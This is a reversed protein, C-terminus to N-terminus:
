RENFKLNTKSLDLRFHDGKEYDVSRRGIVTLIAQIDLKVTGPAYEEDPTTMRRNEEAEKESETRPSNKRVYATLIEMITRHYKDPREKAIQELAYIGGLRIEINKSKGDTSGLQEIARTFRETIQGSEMAIVQRESARIRRYTLFLGLGIAIGGIFQVTTRRFTDELESREKISLDNPSLSNIQYRPVYVAVLIAIFLLSLFFWTKLHRSPTFGINSLFDSLSFFMEGCNSGCFRKYLGSM